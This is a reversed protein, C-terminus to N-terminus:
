KRTPISSTSESREYLELHARQLEQVCEFARQHRVLREELSLASLIELVSVDIENEIATCPSIEPKIFGRMVFIPYGDDLCVQVTPSLLM